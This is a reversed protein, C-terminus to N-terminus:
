ARTPSAVNLEQVNIDVIALDVNSKCMPCSTNRKFWEDICPVHFIHKCPLNRVDEDDEFEILCIPCLDENSTTDDNNAADVSALQDVSKAPRKYKTIELQGLREQSVGQPAAEGRRRALEMNRRDVRRWRILLIILITIISVIFGGLVYILTEIDMPLVTSSEEQLRANTTNYIWIDGRQNQYSGGHIVMCDKWAAARHNYRLTPSTLKSNIVGYYVKMSASTVPASTTSLGQSMLMAPDANVGTTTSDSSKDLSFKGMVVDDYVYGNTGTRPKYYGGFFWMGLPNISIVSTYARALTSSSSVPIWQNQEIGFLWVDNLLTWTSYELHRGSFVLLYSLGETDHMLTVSHSFRAPPQTTGLPTLRTWKCGSLDYSWIDNYDVPAKQVNDDYAIGGFVIMQNGYVVAGAESRPNPFVAGSENSVPDMTWKLSNSTSSLQLRWVDNYQVIVADDTSKSALVSGDNSSISLGGFVVLEEVTGNAHLVGTHHFRHPPKLESDKVVQWWQQALMDFRWTDEFEKDYGDSGEGIGGYIYISDQVVIM